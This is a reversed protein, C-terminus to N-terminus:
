RTSSWRCPPADYGAVAFGVRHDGHLLYRGQVERKVGDVRQYVVPPAQRLRHGGADLVLAGSADVTLRGAGTYRLRIQDPDAGPALTLDFELEGGRNAYYELSVGDYLDRYSVRSYSPVGTLWGGPDDGRLYNSVGALRGQGTVVPDPNAGEFTLGVVADTAPRAPRRAPSGAAQDAPRRLKLVAGTGTMLM